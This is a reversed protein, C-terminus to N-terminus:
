TPLRSRMIAHNGLGADHRTLSPTHLDSSQDTPAVPAGQRLAEGSLFGESSWM